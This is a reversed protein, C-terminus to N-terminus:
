HRIGASIGLEVVGKGSATEDRVGSRLRVVVVLLCFPFSFFSLGPNGIRAASLLM